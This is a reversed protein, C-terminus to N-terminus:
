MKYDSTKELHSIGIKLFLQPSIRFLLIKLKEKKQARVFMMKLSFMNNFLKKANVDELYKYMEENGILYLYLIGRLLAVDNEVFKPYTKKIDDHRENIAVYYDVLMSTSKERKYATVANKHRFYYYKIQNSYVGKPLKMVIKYTVLIDDTPRDQFRIGEFCKRKILKNWMTVAHDESLITKILMEQSNLVRIKEEKNKVKFNYDFITLPKCTSFDVNYKKCLNYLYEIADLEIFDDADIFYLYDGKSNDIGINRSLSLGLNETTIIKIRKDNFSECIKLTNDTSGDNIILIELNKYTQNIVSEICKKIFKEENYVNIIVTILEQM